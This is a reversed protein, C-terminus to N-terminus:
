LEEKQQQQQEQQKQQQKKLKDKELMEKLKQQILDQRIEQKPQESGSDDEDRKDTPVQVMVKGSGAIHVEVEVPDVPILQIDSITPLTTTTTTTTTTEDGGNNDGGTNEGGFDMVVVTEKFNVEISEDNNTPLNHIMFRICVKFKDNGIGDDDNTGEDAKGGSVYSSVKSWYYSFSSATTDTTTSSLEEKQKELLLKQYEISNFELGLSLIRPKTGDGVHDISEFPSTLFRVHLSEESTFDGKCDENTHIRFKAREINIFDSVSYDLRFKNTEKSRILTPDSIGFKTSLVGGSGGGAPPTGADDTASAVEEDAAVALPLSPAVLSLAINGLLLYWIARTVLM